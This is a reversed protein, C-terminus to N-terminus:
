SVVVKIIAGLLTAGILLEWWYERLADVFSGSSADDNQEADIESNKLRSDKYSRVNFEKLEERFNMVSSTRQSVDPDLANIIASVLTEPLTSPLIERVM